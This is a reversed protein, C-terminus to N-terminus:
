ATKKYKDILSFFLNFRDNINNLIPLIRPIEKVIEPKSDIYDKPSFKEKRIKPYRSTEEHKSMKFLLPYLFCVLDYEISSVERIINGYKTLILEKMMPRLQNKFSSLLEDDKSRQISKALELRIQEFGDIIKKFKIRDLKRSNVLETISDAEREPNIRLIEKTIGNEYILNSVKRLNKIINNFGKNKLCKIFAKSSDHSIEKMAKKSVAGFLLSYAKAYKEVSQQIHFIVSPNFEKNNSKFLYEATDLDNKAITLYDKALPRNIISKQILKKYEEDIQRFIKIQKKTIYM